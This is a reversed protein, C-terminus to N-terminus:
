RDGETSPPLDEMGGGEQQEQQMREQSEASIGMLELVENSLDYKANTFLMTVAGAKDFIFDLAEDEALEQVANFVRDQIPKILESRKKFLEGDQGFKERKYQNLKREKEMIQDEREKREEEPLLVQEAQYDKYLKEIEEVKNEVEKQWTEAMNDLQKQASRYEPVKELIYESDVYAFRQAVANSSLAIQLILVLFFPLKNKIKKM